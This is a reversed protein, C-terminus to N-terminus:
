NLEVFILDVGVVVVVADADVLLPVMPPKMKVGFKM